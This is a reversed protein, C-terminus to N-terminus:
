RHHASAFYQALGHTLTCPRRYLLCYFFFVDTSTYWECSHDRATISTWLMKHLYRYLPDAVHSIRGKAKDHEWTDAGAVVVFEALTMSRWVSALRFYVEPPPPLAHPQAPPQDVRPPHFAFTSLFGVM